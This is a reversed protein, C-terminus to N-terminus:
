EEDTGFTQDQCKQCMGSIRYERVSLDDRLNMDPDDCTMCKGGRITSERDKGAISSLFQNIEPSKQTPEM